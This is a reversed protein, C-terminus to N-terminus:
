LKVGRKFHIVMMEVVDASKPNVAYDYQISMGTDLKMGPVSRMAFIVEREMGEPIYGERFVAVSYASSLSTGSDSLPADERSFVVFDWPMTELDEPSVDGYYIRGDVSSLAERINELLEM